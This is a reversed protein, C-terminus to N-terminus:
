AVELNYRQKLYDFERVLKGDHYVRFLWRMDSRRKQERESKLKSLLLLVGAETSCGIANSLEYRCSDGDTCILEIEIKKPKKM